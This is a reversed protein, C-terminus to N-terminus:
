FMVVGGSIHVDEPGLYLPPDAEHLDEFLQEIETRIAQPLEQFVRPTRTGSWYTIMFCWGDVEKRGDVSVGLGFSSVNEDDFPKRSRYDFREALEWRTLPIPTVKGAKVRKLFARLKKLVAPDDPCRNPKYVPLQYEYERNLGLQRLMQKCTWRGTICHILPHLEAVIELQEANLEHRQM